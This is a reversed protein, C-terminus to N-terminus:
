PEAEDVTWGLVVVVLVVEFVLLALRIGGEFVVEAKGASGGDWFGFTLMSPMFVRGTPREPVLVGFGCLDWILAHPFPPM